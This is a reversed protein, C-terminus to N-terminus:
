LCREQRWWEAKRQEIHFADRWLFHIDLVDIQANYREHEDLAEPNDQHQDPRLDRQPQRAYHVSLNSAIYHRFLCHGGALYARMWHHLHRVLQLSDHIKDALPSCKKDEGQDEEGHYIHESTLKGICGKIKLKPQDLIYTQIELGGHQLFQFPMHVRGQERQDQTITKGMVAMDPDIQQAHM